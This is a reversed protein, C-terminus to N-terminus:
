CEQLGHDSFQTAWLKPLAWVESFAARGREKASVDEREGQFVHWMSWIRPLKQSGEVVGVKGLYWDKRVEERGGWIYFRYGSKKFHLKGATLM